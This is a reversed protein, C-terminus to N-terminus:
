SDIFQAFKSHHFVLEGCKTVKAQKICYHDVYRVREQNAYYLYNFTDAPFYKRFAIFCISQEDVAFVMDCHQILFELNQYSKCPKLFYIGEKEPQIPADRLQITITTTPALFLPEQLLTYHTQGPLGFFSKGYDLYYRSDFFEVPAQITNYIESEIVRTYVLPGTNELVAHKGILDSANELYNIKHVISQIVARLFPHHKEFIIHWNQLEGKRNQLVDKQFYLGEWYSLLGHQTTAWDSFPVLCKIKIDLYIGGNEFIIVYRFFDARAAGYHPNIRFFTNAYNTNFFFTNLDDDDYLIFKYDPNLAQNHKMIFQYQYPINTKSHWTQYVIKPIM